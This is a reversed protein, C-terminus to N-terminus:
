DCSKASVDVFIQKILNVIKRDNSAKTQSLKTIAVISNLHFGCRCVVLLTLLKHDVAWCSQALFVPNRVTKLM